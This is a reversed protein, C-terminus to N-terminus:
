TLTSPSQLEPQVVINRVKSVWGVFSLNSDSKLEQAYEPSLIITPGFDADILFSKSTQFGRKILERASKVFQLKARIGMFDISNLDFPRKRNALPFRSHGLSSASVWALLVVILGCALLITTSQLTSDEMWLAIPTIM